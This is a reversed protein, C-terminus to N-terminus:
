GIYSTDSSKSYMRKVTKSLVKKQDEISKVKEKEERKIERDLESLKVEVELIDKLAKLLAKSEKLGIHFQHGFTEVLLSVGFMKKLKSIGLILGTAGIIADAKMKKFNVRNTLESFRKKAEESNAVGYVKPHNPETGLGIGGLTIVEKCGHKHALDVILNSFEYSSEEDVPQVDGSLLILDREKLRVTYLTVSPMEIINGDNVFVSHPFSTSYITYMVKHELQDILFDVAIKGVNGIGPLGEILIPNKLKVSDGIKKDIIWKDM